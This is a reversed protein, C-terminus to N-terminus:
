SFRSCNVAYSPDLIQFNIWSFIQKGVEPYLAPRPLVSPSTQCRSKLRATEPSWEDMEAWMTWPISSFFSLPPSSASPTGTTSTSYSRRSPRVPSFAMAISWRYKPYMSMAQATRSAAGLSRAVSKPTSAHPSASPTLSSTSCTSAFGMKFSGPTPTASFFRLRCARSPAPLWSQCARSRVRSRKRTMSQTCHLRHRRWPFTPDRPMAVAMDTKSPASPRPPSEERKCRTSTAASRVVRPFNALAMRM